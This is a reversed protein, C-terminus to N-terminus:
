TGEQRRISAMVEEEVSKWIERKMKLFDDSLQIEVHRPRPLNNEMVNKIRGPRASMVAVRDSIILAEDISHTIFIVTKHSEDVIRLLEEQMVQRTMADLAAFPEDCLLVDPENALARCLAVRQRMGGSLQTPYSNEFGELGVMKLYRDAIEARSKRDVGRMLPGFEVNKRVTKWPFLAYQQFIMTCRPEIGTIPVGRLLVRGNSPSIFGAVMNLFTTKGCGSAGVIALVEGPTVRLSFNELATVTGHKGHFHQTVERAEVIPTETESIM